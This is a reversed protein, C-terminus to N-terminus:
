TPCTTFIVDTIVLVGKSTFHGRVYCTEGNTGTDIGIIPDLGNMHHHINIKTIEASSENEM